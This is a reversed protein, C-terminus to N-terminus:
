SLIFSKIATILKENYIVFHIKPSNKKNVIIWKNDNIYFDINKFIDKELKKITNSNENKLFEEFELQEEEKYIKMLPKAMSLMYKAKEKAFKIEEKKTTLYFMSAAEDTKICESSLAISGSVCHSGLFFNSPPNQFYYPFISGTMYVPIWNELGLLMEDIPRDINHIINLHLGRKLLMTIALVWKKKFSEDEGAKSIPLNSFFFIPETAKSLLTTKLFEGEAKKRGEIGFFTKSNKFIVPTTPVKIKNFSTDIYDNLNFNDLKALFNSINKEKGFHNSTIWNTFIEKYNKNLDDSSCNFLSLQAEIQKPKTCTMYIYDTLKEIFNDLDAPRREKNKIRSIFSSDYGIAKSLDVVSINLEDLLVNFKESFFNYNINSANLSTKLKESISIRTLNLGKEKSIQYISDILKQMYPSDAKPTRKSNIYRSVLAPSLGSKKCIDKATCHLLNMYNILEKSFDM